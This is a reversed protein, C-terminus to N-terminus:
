LAATVMAVHKSALHQQKSRFFTAPALALLMTAQCTVLRVESGRTLAVSSVGVLVVMSGAVLAALATGPLGPWGFTAM